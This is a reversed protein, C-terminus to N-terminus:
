LVDACTRITVMQPYCFHLAPRGPVKYDDCVWYVEFTYYCGGTGTPFTPSTTSIIFDGTKRKAEGTNGNDCGCGRAQARSPAQPTRRLEVVQENRLLAPTGAKIHVLFMGKDTKIVSLAAEESFVVQEGSGRTLAIFGREAPVPYGGIWMTPGESVKDTATPAEKACATKLEELELMINEKKMPQDFGRCRPTKLNNQTERGISFHARVPHRQRSVFSRGRM